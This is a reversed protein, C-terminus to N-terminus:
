AEAVSAARLLEHTYPHRPRAFLDGVPAAEVIEGGRMVLARDCAGAVVGFDHTILVIATGFDRRIDKLLDLIQAQVTVDLASTPEDAILLAPSTMLNMAIMVRQCQGGSLEHPYCDIRRTADPIRVADLLELARRRAARRTEGRHVTLVETMQRSITLYPNLSSTPNQFITAIGAGRIRNLERESLHLLERGRFRVSGEARGNPALLGLAALLTQSKGSGSEGVIGLVEGADVAFSVGNVARVDGTSTEFRVHLDDVSFLM